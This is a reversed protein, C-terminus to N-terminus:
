FPRIFKKENGSFKIAHRRAAFFVKDELESITIGDNGRKILNIGKQTEEFSINYGGFIGCM